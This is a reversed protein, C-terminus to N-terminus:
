AATLVMELVRKEGCLELEIPAFAEPSAAATLNTVTVQQVGDERKVEVQLDQGQWILTYVLRNWEKPLVPDIRLNGGLM